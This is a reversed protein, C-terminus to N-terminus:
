CTQHKSKRLDYNLPHVDIAEASGLVIQESLFDGSYEPGLVQNVYARTALSCGRLSQRQLQLKSHLHHLLGVLGSLSEQTQADEPFHFHDDVRRVALVRKGIAQIHGKLDGLESLHRAAVVGHNSVVFPAHHTTSKM